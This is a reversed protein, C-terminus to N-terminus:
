YKYIIKRTKKEAADRKLELENVEIGDIVQMKEEGRLEEFKILFDSKGEDSLAFIESESSEVERILDRRELHLRIRERHDQETELRKQIAKVREIGAHRECALVFGSKPFLPRSFRATPIYTIDSPDFIEESDGTMTSASSESSESLPSNPRSLSFRAVKPKKSEGNASENMIAYIDESPVLNPPARRHLGTLSPTTNENELASLLKGMDELSSTEEKFNEGISSDILTTDNSLRRLNRAQFKEITFPSM